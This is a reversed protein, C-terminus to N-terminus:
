RPNPYPRPRAKDQERVHESRIPSSARDGALVDFPGPHDSPDQEAGCLHWRDAHVVYRTVSLVRGRTDKYGLTDVSYASMRGIVYLWQGPRVSRIVARAQGQWFRVDFPTTIEVKVGDLNRGVTPALVRVEVFLGPGHGQVQSMREVRGYITISNMAGRSPSSGDNSAICQWHEQWTSLGLSIIHWRLFRVQCAGHHARM